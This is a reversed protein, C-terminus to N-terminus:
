LKWEFHVGSVTRKFDYDEVSYREIFPTIRFNDVKFKIGLQDRADFVNGRDRFSVRPQWKAWLHAPGWIHKEYEAIFRWRWYSETIDFHRYEMRGEVTLDGWAGSVNFFEGTFKIRNETKRGLDAYRYMVEIPGVKNGVEAHWNGERQRHTFEWGDQTAIKFNYEQQTEAASIQMPFTFAVFTIITFSILLRIREYKILNM